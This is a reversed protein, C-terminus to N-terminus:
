FDSDSYVTNLDFFGVTSRYVKFLKTVYDNYIEAFNTMVKAKIVPHDNMVEEINVKPIVYIDASETEVVATYTRNTEPLIANDGFLGGSRLTMLKEFDDAVDLKLGVIGSKVIYIAHSPDGTFFVVENRHYKREYVYPLLHILEDDELNEFLKSKRLFSFQFKEKETYSKKFIKFM